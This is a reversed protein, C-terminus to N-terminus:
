QNNIYNLYYTVLYPFVNEDINYKPSHGPPNDTKDFGAGAFAYCGPWRTLIRGFDDSQMLRENHLLDKEGFTQIAAAKCKLTVAPDNKVPPLGKSFVMDITVGTAEETAKAARTLIDRLKEGVEAKFFRMSAWVECTEPVINTKTGAHVGTFSLVADDLPSITRDKLRQSTTLFGLMANIPDITMDPRSSHGGKGRILAKMTRTGSMVPGPHISIIGTKLETGTHVSIAEDLTIGRSDFDELVMRAGAGIEEAPEFLFLLKGSFSVKRDVLYKILGLLIAMHGDHGCAHMVGDTKSAFALGTEETLPLADLECRILLTLGTRDGTLEGLVGTTGVIQSSVGLQNLEAIIYDRTKEEHLSLEPNAHIYRRKEIMYDRISEPFDAVKYM